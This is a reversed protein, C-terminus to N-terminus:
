QRQIEVNREFKSAISSQANNGRVIRVFNAVPESFAMNFEYSFTLKKPETM